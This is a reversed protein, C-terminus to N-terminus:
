LPLYTIKYYWAVAFTLGVTVSITFLLTAWKELMHLRIPLIKRLGFLLFPLVPLFYRGQVGEIPSSGVSNYVIYFTTIIGLSTLIALCFFISGKKIDRSFNTKIKSSYIMAWSLIIALYSVVVTPLVVYNYGLTGITGEFWSGKVVSIIVTYLYKFPDLFIHKLQGSQNLIVSPGRQLHTAATALAYVKYNWLLGVIIVLFPLIIRIYMKQKQSLIKNPIFCIALALILYNPKGLTLALATLTLFGLQSLKLYSKQEWIVLLQAFLLISIGTVFSDVNVVSAQFLAMPLLSCVFVLWKINRKRLLYLGATVLATYTLLTAIRAGTMISGVTPNILRAVIIGIAPAVYPVPSYDGSGMFDREETKGALKVGEMRHYAQTSDVEKVEGPGNDLLDTKVYNNLTVVGQPLLGGYSTPSLKKEQFVGTSIQYARDFHLDEDVGWNPPIMFVFVFGFFLAIIAFLIHTQIIKYIFRKM